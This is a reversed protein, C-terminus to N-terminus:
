FLHTQLPLCAESWNDNNLIHLVPTHQEGSYPSQKQWDRTLNRLGTTKVWQAWSRESNGFSTIPVRELCANRRHGLTARNETWPGARSGAPGIHLAPISSLSPRVLRTIQIGKKLGTVQSDMKGELDKCNWGSKVIKHIHAKVWIFCLTRMFKKKKKKKCLKKM